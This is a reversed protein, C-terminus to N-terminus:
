VGFFFSKMERCLGPLEPFVLSETIGARSLELRVDVVSAAPIVLKRLCADSDTCRALADLGDRQSGHITFVGRQAQIRASGYAGRIALAAKPMDKAPAGVRWPAVHEVDPAYITDPWQGLAMRNLWWPSTVWLTADHEGAGDRVAFYLAILYSETWDLLRTPLGHHQMAFLWEWDSQPPHDFYRRARLKFMELLELENYYGAGIGQSRAMRLLSPQLEWRADVHGRFWPQVYWEADKPSWEVVIREVEAVIAALSTLRQTDTRGM